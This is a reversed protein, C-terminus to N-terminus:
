SVDPSVCMRIRFSTAYNQKIDEATVNVDFTEAPYPDIGLNRLEQLSERRIIEQESLGISM